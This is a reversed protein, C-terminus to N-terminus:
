SIPAAEITCNVMLKKGFLARVVQGAKVQHVGTVAGSSVWTGAEIAINRAGLNNLLFRVSGVPGDPFANATGSGVEIGDVALAVDWDAFSSTQWDDIQAGIILGNNNGFDSVTVAPGLANITPLPSSAIEIGVHVASIHSAAEDLTYDQKGTPLDTGIKILFEAEAAGFGNTFISGAAAKDDCQKTTSFIPGALRDAGYQESLPPFIRGVKWGVVPLSVFKIAADQVAYAAALSDPISGPYDSLARGSRRASVFQNAIETAIM